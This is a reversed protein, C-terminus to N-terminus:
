PTEEGPKGLAADIMALWVRAADEKAALSSPIQCRGVEKMQETPERMAEIAELAEKVFKHWNAEVGRRLPADEITVFRKQYYHSALVRAMREVMEPTDTM